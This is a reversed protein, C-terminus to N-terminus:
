RGAQWRQRTIEYLRWERSLETSTGVLEWGARQFVTQMAVNAPDTEGEIRQAAAREFLWDTLLTLAERGYGRGRADERLGMGVAFVGPGLPRDPPVFTQIRGISEGDLDIALDLWGDVLRGSRGLRARFGAEDPLQAVAMPDAQVMSQWEDDIETPRLARLLLRPGRISVQRAVGPSDGAAQTDM